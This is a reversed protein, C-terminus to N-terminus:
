AYYALLKSNLKAVAQNVQELEAPSLRQALKDELKLDQQNNAKWSEEQLSLEAAKAKFDLLEPRYDLGLFNLVKKLSAEPDQVLAEYYLHLHQPQQYYRESLKLEERYRTIAKALSAQQFAEPHEKSVSYLAAINARPERLTHIFLTDPFHKKILEIYHLHMPTKELWIEKQAQTALQDLVGILYRTWASWNKSDAPQPQFFDGYGLEQMFAQLQKIKQKPLSAFPRLWRPKPITASFFHTEPLSFIAPHNAILSQSLTTGSRATGVIFIRKM